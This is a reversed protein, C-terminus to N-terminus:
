SVMRLIELVQEKRDIRRPNTKGWIDTLTYEAIRDLQREETVGVEALTTPLGLTKVLDKILDGADATERTLGHAAFTEGAAEWMIEAVKEQRAANVGKNYKMVAHLMICSTEGHPVNGVSGLQHSIAHSAGLPIWQHGTEMAKWAGVQCASRAAIDASNVSCALLGPVLHRLGQEASEEVTSTALDTCLAEVCHDVARMGTGLWLRQPTATCIDPDLIVCKAACLTHMFVVKKRTEPHTAACGVHYEAASLTTPVVILKLLPDNAKSPTIDGNGSTKALLTDMGSVNLDSYKLSSHVLQPTDPSM